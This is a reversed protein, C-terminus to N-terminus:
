SLRPMARDSMDGLSGSAIWWDPHAEALRDHAAQAARDSDYLGFCTAGSGSMRALACGPTGSLSHLVTDIVPAIRRAPPELDNRQSRLWDILTPATEFVPLPDVMAPNTKSELAAFVSPTSVPVRPNILVAPVPPIPVPTIDEGIGRARLTTPYVCMPIDAGLRRIEGDDEFTRAKQGAAEAGQELAWCGRLAAAADSSGGGIGAAAPLHKTLHISVPGVGPVTQAARWVLNSADQPVGDAQPGDVALAPEDARSLRLTDGVPAFAVLSDILHYGDARQGTIHLTLNIKAPAFVEVTTM